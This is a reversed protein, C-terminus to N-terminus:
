NAITLSFAHDKIITFVDHTLSQRIFRKLSHQSPAQDLTVDIVVQNKISFTNMDFTQVKMTELYRFIGMLLYCLEVESVEKLQLGDFHFDFTMQKEHYAEAKSILLADIIAYDTYSIPAIVDKKEYMGELYQKVNEEPFNAVVLEKMMEDIEQKQRTMDHIHTSFDTYYDQLLHHSLNLAETELTVRQDYRIMYGFMTVVLCSFLCVYVVEFVDEIYVRTIISNFYFIFVCLSMLRKRKIKYDRLADLLVHGYHYLCYVVASMVVPVLLDLPQFPGYIMMIEKHGELMNVPSILLWGLVGVVVDTLLSTMLAKVHTGDNADFTYIVLLVNGITYVAQFLWDYFTYGSKFFLYAGNAHYQAGQIVVRTFVWLAFPMISRKRYLLCCSLMLELIITPVSFIMLRLM